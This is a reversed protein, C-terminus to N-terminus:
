DDFKLHSRYSYYKIIIFIKTNKRVCKQLIIAVYLKFDIVYIVGSFSIFINLCISVEIRPNLVHIVHWLNFKLYYLIQDPCNITEKKKQFRTDAPHVHTDPKM